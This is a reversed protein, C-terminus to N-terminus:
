LAGRPHVSEYVDNFYDRLEELEFLVNRMGPEKSHEQAINFMILLTIKMMELDPTEEWSMTEDIHALLTSKERSASLADVTGRLATWENKLESSVSEEFHTDEPLCSM